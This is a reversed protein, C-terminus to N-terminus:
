GKYDSDYKNGYVHHIIEWVYNYAATKPQFANRNQYAIYGVSRYLIGGYITYTNGQADAVIIYPRMAIDEKCQDNNFGVLVNTYQVLTGTDKFVPDAVGKKYAYNSRSYSQGLILAGDGMKSTQALLTGYEVLTYGALGSGTLAQKVSKNLSSIMRIGKNGAIRISSGSYQLLNDFEKIYKASYAGDKYDLMWVKMSNPYQTHVDKADGVYFSHATMVSANEPLYVTGTDEKYEIPYEAGDIWVVTAGGLEERSLSVSMGIGRLEEYDCRSCERRMTEEDAEEWESLDHGLPEGGEAGCVSCTKGETCSAESWQHDCFNEISLVFLATMDNGCDYYYGVAADEATIISGDLTGGVVEVVKSVDVGSLASLDFKNQEATVVRINYETTLYHLDLVKSLDLHTLYNYSCNLTGLTTNKSVDLSTLENYSCNLKSLITNTSLDLSTLANDSCYLENLGKCGRVNLSTLQNSGCYLFWLDRSASVDLETLANGSCVVNILGTCGSLDLRTLKNNGCGFYQLKACGNVYLETLENEDCYLYFLNTNNRVDLTKLENSNCFLHKLGTNRSVDLETLANSSCDLYELKTCGSVNLATLANENCYLTKLATCKSVDLETLSSKSVDLKELKTNDGLILETLAASKCVVDKLAPNKSLDLKDFENESCQLTELAANNGLDLATLDNRRCDLEKLAPNKSLDLSTLKNDSCNLYELKTNKSVDLATLDNNCRLYELSTFFEIGQLSAVGAGNHVSIETVAKLESETLWGDSAGGIKESIYKKFKADPFNVESVSIAGCATCVGNLETHAITGESEGCVSCTKAAGCVGDKWSHGLKNVEDDTYSDGCSCTYTTYGDETCKPPTVNKEYSHSHPGSAYLAKIADIYSQCCDSSRGLYLDYPLELLYNSFPDISYTRRNLWDDDTLIQFDLHNSYFNASGYGSGGTKGLVTEGGVVTTGVSLSASIESMHAYRTYLTMTGSSTTYSHRLMVANGYGQDNAGNQTIEVVEGDYSAVIDANTTMTGIDISYHDRGDFFCASINHYDPVPWKFDRNGKIVAPGLEGAEAAAVKADMPMLGFLFVLALAACIIRRISKM